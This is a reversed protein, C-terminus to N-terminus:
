QDIWTTTQQQLNLLQQGSVLIRVAVDVVLLEDPGDHIALVVFEPRGGYGPGNTQMIFRIVLKAIWM